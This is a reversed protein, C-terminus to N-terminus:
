KSVGSRSPVQPWAGPLVGISVDTAGVRCLPNLENQAVRPTVQARPLEGRILCHRLGLRGCVPDQAARWGGQLM